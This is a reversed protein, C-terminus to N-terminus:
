PFACPLGVRFQAPTDCSCLATGRGPAHARHTPLRFSTCVGCTFVFSRPGGRAPSAAGVTGRRPFCIRPTAPSAPMADLRNSRGCVTPRQTRTRHPGARGELLRDAQEEDPGWLTLLVDRSSVDINVSGDRHVSLLAAIGTVDGEPMDHRWRPRTLAAEQQSWQRQRRTIERLCRSLRDTRTTPQPGLLVTSHLCDGSDNRM